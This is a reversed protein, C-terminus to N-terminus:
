VNQTNSDRHHMEEGKKKREKEVKEYTLPGQNLDWCHM